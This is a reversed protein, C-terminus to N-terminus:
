GSSLEDMGAANWAATTVSETTLGIMVGAAVDTPYHACRPIQSAAIITAAGM